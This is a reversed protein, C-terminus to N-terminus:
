KNLFNNVELFQYIEKAVISNGTKNLHHNQTSLILENFDYKKFENTLSLINSIDCEKANQLVLNEVFINEKEGHWDTRMEMYPLYLFILNIKKEAVYESLECLKDNLIFKSAEKQYDNIIQSRLSLQNNPYLVKRRVFNAARFIYSYNLYKKIPHPPHQNIDYIDNALFQFIVLDQEALSHKELKNKLNYVNQNLSYGSLGYNIDLFQKGNSRLIKSLFKSYNYNNEMYPNQTYSDGFFFIKSLTKDKILLCYEEKERLKCSNTEFSIKDKIDKYKITQKCNSKIEYYIATESRQMCPIGWEAASAFPNIKSYLRLSIETLLVLSFFFIIYYINKKM